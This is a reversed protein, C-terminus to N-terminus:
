ILNLKKTQLYEKIKVLEGYKSTDESFAPVLARIDEYVARSPSSLKDQIKLYDIAQVLTLFEIAMVEFSNDIVKDTALAANAGM